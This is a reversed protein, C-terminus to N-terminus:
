EFDDEFIVDIGMSVDDFFYASTGNLSACSTLLSVYASHAYKPATVGYSQSSWDTTASYDPSETLDLKNGNFGCADDSWWVAQFEWAPSACELPVFSPYKVWTAIVYSQGEDVPVCQSISGHDTIPNSVFQQVLVSGSSPNDTHNTSTWLSQQSLKWFSADNDFSSNELLNQNQGNASFSLAVNEASATISFTAVLAAITVERIDM